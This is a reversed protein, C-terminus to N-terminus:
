FLTTEAKRFTVNNEGIFIGEKTKDVKFTQLGGPAGQSDVKHNRMFTARFTNRFVPNTLYFIVPNLMCSAKCCMTPLTNLWVPIEDTYFAWVCVFAYPSWIVVFVVVMLLSIWTVKSEAITNNAQEAEGLNLPKGKSAKMTRLLQGSRNVVKYYCYSMIGVPILYCLLILMYVYLINLPTQWDWDITCSTGFPEYTYRSVGVLPLGCLVISLIWIGAIVKLTVRYNLRHNHQPLCVAIWRYVSVLTLTYMDSLAFVFTTFGQIQCGWPGWLWREAFCSSMTWPYGFISTGLDSLALNILLMNHPKNRLKKNRSFMVITTSNGVTAVIALFLLYLACATYGAPALPRIERLLILVEWEDRFTSVNGSTMTFSTVKDSTNRTAM